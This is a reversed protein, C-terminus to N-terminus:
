VVAGDDWGSDTPPGSRMNYVLLAVGGVIAMVAVLTWNGDDFNTALVLLGLGIAGLAGITAGRLKPLPPPPPPEFHAENAPDWGTVELDGVEADDDPEGEAALEVPGTPESAFSPEPTEERLSSVMQQWASEFDVDAAAPAGEAVTAGGSPAPQEGRSAHRERDVLDRARSVEATDVWLRDVPRDPLRVEGYGGVSGQTPAAYAAIGVDRLEALLRDAVWPDLDAVAAYGGCRLGNDRSGRPSAGSFETAM